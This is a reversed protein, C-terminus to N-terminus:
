AVALLCRLVEALQNIQGLVRIGLPQFDALGLCVRASVISYTTCSFSEKATQGPARRGDGRSIGIIRAIAKAVTSPASTALTAAKVSLGFTIVDSDPPRSRAALVAIAGSSQGIQVVMADTADSASQACSSGSKLAPLFASPASSQFPAIAASSAAASRTGSLASM